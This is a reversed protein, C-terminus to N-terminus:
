SHAKQVYANIATKSDNHDALALALHYFGAAPSEDGMWSTLCETRLGEIVHVPM